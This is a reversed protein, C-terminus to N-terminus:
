AKKEPGSDPISVIGAAKPVGIVFCIGNGPKELDGADYVAQFVADSKTKDTLILIVEKEPQFAVGFIKMGEDTGTGRGNLITGGEAGAAKAHDMLIEAEGKKVIGVILDFQEYCINM